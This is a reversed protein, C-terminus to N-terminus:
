KNLKNCFREASRKTIRCRLLFKIADIKSYFGVLSSKLDYPFPEYVGNCRLPYYIKM